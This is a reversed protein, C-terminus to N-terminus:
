STRSVAFETAFVLADLAPGPPFGALAARARASAERARRTAEALGGTDRVLAVVREPEVRSFDRDTIVRIVLERAEHGGRELAHLVPLTVTGERLDSLVPKGLTAENSEFDLIDDALQFALGLHLGYARLRERRSSGAADGVLVSPIESACAMLRGTKLEVVRLYEEVTRDLRGSGAEQLAEGEVLDLTTRSILALVDDHGSEIALAMAKMCLYDGVLVTMTNGYRQNLTPLGRRLVAEDIVDDHLLSAVHVYEVATGYLVDRGGRYGCLDASLLLLLPRLRKGGSQFVATAADRLPEPCDGLSDVLSAELAQLRGGVLDRVHEVLQSSV